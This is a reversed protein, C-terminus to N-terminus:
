AGKAIISDIMEGVNKWNQIELSTFRVKFGKEVAVVLHIHNLSDWDEVDDATTEYTLVINDDELVDIFIENVKKLIDEKEM